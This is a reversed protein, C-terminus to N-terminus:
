IESTVVITLVSAGLNAFDAWDHELAIKTLGMQWYQDLANQYRTILM